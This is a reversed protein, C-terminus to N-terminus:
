QSKGRAAIEWVAEVAGNRICVYRDYLNVTTDCHSPWFAVADGIELPCAGDYVLQGHEEGAFGFDAGPADIPVPLGGDSSVAKYGMDLIARNAAPRSIVTALLSLSKEFPTPNGDDWEIGGYRSDMFIYGGPQIETLGGRAADIVSTGTGGGTLVAVEIGRGRVQEATELLLDLAKLSADRRAGFDPTMQILGQYGQLGRFRLGAAAAIREALVAAAPGTPVGCRGQGVDLEIVVEIVVDRASQALDDINGADDAVVAITARRAARVLREIKAAGIVPSTILIDEIGAAAMVEAEGLKACCVGAAGAALQMEAIVPSKHSKAHPRYAIDADKALEAMRAINRELADLDLLLAPTDVEGVPLGVPVGTPHEANM